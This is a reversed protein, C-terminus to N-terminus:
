EPERAFRPFNAPVINAGSSTEEAGRDSSSTPKTGALFGRAISDMTRPRLM